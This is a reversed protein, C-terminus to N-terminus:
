RSTLNFNQVNKGSVVEVTITSKKNYRAPLREKPDSESATYISVAHSGILAGGIDRIYILRYHGADDTTARSAHGGMKPQFVVATAALPRGDLTITGEVLGLDPGRQCGATLTAIMMVLFARSRM